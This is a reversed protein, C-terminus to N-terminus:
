MGHRVQTDGAQRYGHLGDFDVAKEALWGSDDEVKRLPDQLFQLRPIEKVQLVAGVDDQVDEAIGLLRAQVELLAGVGVEVRM